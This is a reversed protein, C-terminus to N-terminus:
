LDGDEYAAEAPTARAEGMTTGEYPNDGSIWGYNWTREKIRWGEPLRVFLDDYTGHTQFFVQRGDHIAGLPNIVKSKVMARSREPDLFTIRSMGFFHMDHTTTSRLNAFLTPKLEAWSGCPGSVSSFDFKCDPAIVTDLVDIEHDDLAHVYRIITENIELRDSLEELSYPM